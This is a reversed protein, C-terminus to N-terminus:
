WYNDNLTTFHRVVVWLPWSVSRLKKAIATHFSIKKTTQSIIRIMILFYFSILQIWSALTASGHCRPVSESGYRQSVSGSGVGVGSGAIKTLSRWSPLLFNLKKQTKSKSPVNIYNKLSLFDYLFWLFLLFWPKEDEKQKIISPYQDMGRIEPDPLGLCMRIRLM